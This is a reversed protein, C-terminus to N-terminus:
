KEQCQSVTEGSYNVGIKYITAIDQKPSNEKIIAQTAGGVLWGVWLTLGIFIPM